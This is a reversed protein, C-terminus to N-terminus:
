TTKTIRAGRLLPRRSDGALVDLGGVRVVMGPLGDVEVRGQAPGEASPGSAQAYDDIRAPRRTQSVLTGVSRDGPGLRTGVPFPLTTGVSSWAGLVTGTSDLDYRLVGTSDAGLLPGAEAAVAAFVEEPVAGHAVLVAV